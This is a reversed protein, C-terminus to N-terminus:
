RKREDPSSSEVPVFSDAPSLEEEWVTDGARKQSETITRRM